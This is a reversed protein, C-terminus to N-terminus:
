RVFDIFGRDIDVHSLQVDVRDGVDLGPQGRVLMGEIPPSITRVFTGKPSAGTVIAEFREGPFAGVAWGRLVTAVQSLNLATFRHGFELPRQELARPRTNM